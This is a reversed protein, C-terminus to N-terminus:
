QSTKKWSYIALVIVALIILIVANLTPEVSVVVIPKKEYILKTLSYTVTNGSIVGTSVIIGPMIISYRYDNGMKQLLMDYNWGSRDTINLGPNECAHCWSPTYIDSHVIHTYDRKKSYSSPEEIVDITLIYTKTLFGEEVEFNYFAQDPSYHKKLIVKEGDAQCSVEYDVCIEDTRNRETPNKSFIKSVLSSSYHTVQTMDASGDSHQVHTLETSICGFLLFMCILSLAKMIMIINELNDTYISIWTDLSDKM